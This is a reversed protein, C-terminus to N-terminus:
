LIESWAPSVAFAANILGVHSYAQPFNGTQKREFPTFHEAFLGLENASSLTGQLAQLAEHKLGIKELAQVLWFSCILFASQPTGFDDQRRYRYLFPNSEPGKELRLQKSIELVTKQSLEADPFRLIPLLLLASDLTQDSPGNTLVGEKVAAHLAAEAKERATQLEELGLEQLYGKAKIKQVRDIGAWCMLNSFSHEQWGNRIEWLGADAVSINHICLRALRVFLDEHERTRLHHFREDLFIPALTLIIEGYVDNQIHEAAQNNSRVPPSNAYGRWQTHTLEPLPLTQDLAYVPRLGEAAESHSHAINLIFKLFGEMEEFHGLNHFASLVFAADRLWCFRYDWNRNEGPTEPLSTTLAALIAGTDEYCHMKLTLASRITEKQFLTPISCHKVWGQWYRRTAELFQETVLPLDDQIGAGWTLGFYLKEQLTFSSEECLYTLSMNTALRLVDGRIEYKIHSNGRIPTAPKKDWGDVPRCAVRIKPSGQLPEVVRFVSMPRYMRGYQEFRPCFDKVIFASGDAGNFVTRLINTNAEYEQRSTFDGVPTISFHGGESDLLSGFVPPSDPRPFCLWTLAGSRDILASTQCNGILGLNYM